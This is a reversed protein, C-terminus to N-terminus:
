EPEITAILGRSRLQDEYLEALEKHCRKAVSKGKTHAELMISVARQLSMKPIVQRLSEVVYDMSNSSDNHLIVKYNPEISTRSGTEEETPAQPKVPTETALVSEALVSKALAVERLISQTNM